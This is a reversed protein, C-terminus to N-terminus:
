RKTLMPMYVPYVDGEEDGILAADTFPGRYGKADRIAVRWYILTLNQYTKTPTYQINVTEIQDFIPSFNPNTSIELRYSAAGDVATWRFTPTGIAGSIPSVLTTIPYQKTFSASASYSSIKGGGDIMAVRWYYTGDPMAKATTYCNQETDTTEWITSFEANDAIQVRYRYTTLVPQGEAYGVLHNWCMTPAYHVNNDADNITLGTPQPRSLTFTATPSWDNTIGGYRRIRVRWYYDDDALTNTPVYENQSTSINILVGTSFGPDTSVQLDYTTAGEVMDWSFVPTAFNVSTQLNQPVFGEREFSYGSTWAGEYLTSGVRYRQMVRWYYTTDGELDDAFAANPMAFHASNSILEYPPQVINSCGEDLCVHLRAGSWPNADGAGTAYDWYFPVLSPMETPDGGGNSPPYLLNIRDTLGTFRTLYGSGPAQPDSPVSDQVANTTTNVSFLMVSASYTSTNMGIATAPIQLEIFGDSNYLDGGSLESLRAGYSWSSSAPQWTFIWTNTKSVAAGTQDIFIAYEPQHAPITTVTYPRENPPATAGSGDKHDLDIYLVYVMNAATLNANFGFYWHANSQAGTLTTLEYNNDTEGNPDLGIQLRNDLSGLTRSHTWESQSAIQFRRGESWAGYSGGVRASVRWYFTGYDLRELSRQAISNPPSYAPIATEGQAVISSSDFGPDRNIEIKYRDAGSVPFWELMPTAEVVEQGNEPRMLVPPSGTAPPALATDFRTRWTQSWMEDGNYPNTACSGGLSDIPCVRWFYDQNNAPTFPDTITPTASTNETDYSWVLNIDFNPTTAVEIRYADTFTGGDPWPTQVKHWMFIPYAVTRDEHPELEALGAYNNPPYYYVPYILAPATSTYYSQWSFVTSILGTYGHNDLPTVRWYYPTPATGRYFNPTYYTNAVVATNILSSFNADLSIEIKYRSAGPVPTWSYVPYLGYKYNNTPTLLTPAIYWHKTFYWTESWEGVSLGSQARVRWCYRADNSFTNTPTYSPNNTEFSDGQSYDCNEDTTYELRYNKAGEVATWRFTPTFTPESNNAPELQIPVGNFPSTGYALTFSRVESPAGLTNAIDVPVVHWYYTGNALKTIPQHATALTDYTYAPSDFSDSTAAIQFRYKAAGSVFEWSFTTSDYFDLTAGDAPNKLAPATDPTAWDRTFLMESSFSSEPKPQEVRVRWYWTNSDFDHTNPTLSTYPTTYARKIPNFGINNALEVRYMTAGPVSSWELTPIGLPPYNVATTITGYDPSIPTPADIALAPQTGLPTFAAALMVIVMFMSFVSSKNLVPSTKKHFM